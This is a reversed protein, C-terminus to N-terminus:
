KNKEDYYKVIKEEYDIEKAAVYVNNEYNGTRFIFVQYGKEIEFKINLERNLTKDPIILVPEETDTSFTEFFGQIFFVDTFTIELSHYYTLNIGGGITLSRGDYKLMHFDFCHNSRILKDIEKVKQNM